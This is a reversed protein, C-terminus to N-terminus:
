SQRNVARASRKSWYMWVAVVLAIVVGIYFYTGDNTVNSVRIGSLVAAIMIALQITKM